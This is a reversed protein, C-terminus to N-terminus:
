GCQGSTQRTRFTPQRVSHSINVFSRDIPIQNVHPAKILTLGQNIQLLNSVKSHASFRVVSSRVVIAFVFRIRSSRRCIMSLASSSTSTSSKRKLFRIGLLAAATRSSSLRPSAASPNENAATPAFDDAYPTVPLVGTPRLYDCVSCPDSSSLFHSLLAM